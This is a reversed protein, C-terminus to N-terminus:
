KRSDMLNVLDIIPKNKAVIRGIERDPNPRRGTISQWKSIIEAQKILDAEIKAEHLWITGPNILSGDSPKNDFVWSKFQSNGLTVVSEFHDPISAVMEDFVKRISSLPQLDMGKLKSIEGLIKQQCAHISFFNHEAEFIRAGEKEMSEKDTITRFIKAANLNKIEKLLTECFDIIAPLTIKQLAIEVATRRRYWKDQINFKEFILKQGESRGAVMEEPNQTALGLNYLAFAKRMSPELKKQEERVMPEEALIEQLQKFLKESEKEGVLFKSM